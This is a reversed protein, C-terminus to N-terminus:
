VNQPRTKTNLMDPLCGCWAYPCTVTETPWQIKDPELINGLLGSVHCTGRMIEGRASIWIGELGAACEWGQFNAQNTKILQLGNFHSKTGDEYEMMHNSDYKSLNYKPTWRHKLNLITLKQEETYQPVKIETNGFNYQIQHHAYHCKETETRLRETFRIAQEFREPDPNMMVNVGVVTHEECVKVKELFDEDNVQETHYSLYIKVFKHANEQWWRLSRSGNSNLSMAWRRAAMRDVLESFDRWVTPEGGSFIIHIQMDPNVTQVHRDLGDCFEDLTDLTLWSDTGSKNSPPCYSCDYTCRDHLMWDVCFYSPRSLDRFIKNIKM